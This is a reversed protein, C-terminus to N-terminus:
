TLNVGGNPTWGWHQKSPFFYFTNAAIAFITTWCCTLNCYYDNTCRATTWNWNYRHGSRGTKETIWNPVRRCDGKLTVIKTSKYNPLGYQSRGYSRVKAICELRYLQWLLGWYFYLKRVRQRLKLSYYWDNNICKYKWYLIYITCIWQEGYTVVPLNRPGITEIVQRMLDFGFHSILFRIFFHRKVWCIILSFAITPM